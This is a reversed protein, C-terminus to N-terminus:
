STAFFNSEGGGFDFFPPTVVEKRSPPVGPLGNAYLLGGHVVCNNNVCLQNDEVYM